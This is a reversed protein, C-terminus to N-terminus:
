AADDLPSCIRCPRLKTKAPDVKTLDERGAVAACDPRHFISGSATAVFSKSSGGAAGSKSAAAGATAAGGALLGELRTIAATLDAAQTRSERIRVTQWYAFYTFGGSIVLALGLIGGSILYDNQEFPLPTRAAGAWGLIILVVGLPMLVGGIILLWRDLNGSAARTRLRRVQEALRDVRNTASAATYTTPTTTTM